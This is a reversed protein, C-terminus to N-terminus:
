IFLKTLIIISIFKKVELFVLQVEDLFWLYLLGSTLGVIELFLLVTTQMSYIEVNRSKLALFFFRM